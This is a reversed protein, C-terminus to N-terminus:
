SGSDPTKKVNSATRCKIKTTCSIAINRVTEVATKQSVNLL